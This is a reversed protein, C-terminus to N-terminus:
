SLLKAIEQRKAVVTAWMAAEDKDEQAPILRTSWDLMLEEIEEQDLDDLGLLWALLRDAVKIGEVRDESRMRWVDRQPDHTLLFYEWPPEHLQWEIANLARLSEKVDLPTPVRPDPLNKNLLRRTIKALIEQGMPWFLLHDGSEPDVDKKPDHVRMKVPENKLTTVTELLGNWYIVLEDYLSDLYEEEPRFRKFADTDKTLEKGEGTGWGGAEHRWASTLLIENMTYLTQLSTFYADSSRLNKGKMLVRVSEKQKGAWSFFKHETILRRTLIAFTDDEDMIINTDKDTAKAYRNLSSFLRRYSQLFAADADEQRVIMLVSIEEDAFGDPAQQSAPDTRDLLTKIAALRHQGDLAYYKQDGSFTLVGFAEDLGQDTFVSFREDDTIRVPYFKPNGGLSAVVVSSFFRDPRKALFSVIENKVRSESLARQIADDLTRDEYVESAFRVEGALERMKMKCIYYKWSGMRAELAPYLNM